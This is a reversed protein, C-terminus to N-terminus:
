PMRRMIRSVYGAAGDASERHEACVRWGLVTAVAPEGCKRDKGTSVECRGTQAGRIIAEIDPSM